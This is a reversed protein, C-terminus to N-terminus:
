RADRQALKTLSNAIDVQFIEPCYMSVHLQAISHGQMVELRDARGVSPSQLAATASRM